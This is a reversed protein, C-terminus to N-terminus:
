IDLNRVELAYKEIFEKRPEVQDGMLVTFIEDAEVADEMTVKLLTRTAPDMTTEWLQQPNMEGLGKYRQIHLGKKAVERVYDLCEKLTDLGKVDDESDMKFANKKSDTDPEFVQEIKFGMKEIRDIIKDMDRAEYFETAYEDKVDVQSDKGLGKEIEQVVKALEKDDYLFQTDGEVKAMYIPLKKTKKHRFGLYKSLKVGRREVAEALRDFEFVLRL